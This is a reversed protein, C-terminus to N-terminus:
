SDWYFGQLMVGSYNAPWGQAMMLLPFLMTLLTFYIKKMNITLHKNYKSTYLYILYQNCLDSFLLLNHM